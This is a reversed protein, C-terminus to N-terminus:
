LLLNLILTFKVTTMKSSVQNWRILSCTSIKIMPYAVCDSQFVAVLNQEKIHSTAVIAILKVM